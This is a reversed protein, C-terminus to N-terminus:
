EAKKDITRHVVGGPLDAKINSYSFGLAAEMRMDLRQQLIAITTANFLKTGRGKKLLALESHPKYTEHGRLGKYNLVQAPM